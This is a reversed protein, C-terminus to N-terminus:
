VMHAQCIKLIVDIQEIIFYMLFVCENQPIYSYFLYIKDM